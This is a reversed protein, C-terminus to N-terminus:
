PGGRAPPLMTDGGEADVVRARLQAQINRLREEDLEYFLLAAATLLAFLGPVVTQMYVISDLSAGSQVEGARYGMTALLSLLLASGAAGGLKQSFTTASFTMGTARHGTKWENFDAVDAYMAWTIPAKFGLAVSILFNLLFICVVAFSLTASDTVAGNSGRRQVSVVAGRRGDTKLSSHRSPAPSGIGGNPDIAVRRRFIWFVTEHQTWVYTDSTLGATGLLDEAQVVPGTDNDISVVGPPPPRPVAAFAVSLGAVVLLAVILVRRKDFWRSAVGALSAGVMLGFFQLGVYPGLLDTRQVYYRFYYAASAGRLTMTTMFAMALVFLVLWPRCQFLNKLDALASSEQDASAETVRESTTVFAVLILASAAIAYIAMTMSWGTPSYRDGGGFYTAVSPTASGVIISTLYAFFFRASNLASREHPNATLVASLSNYPTNVVTYMLMVLGYTAYAWILKGTPSFSPTTMMMIGAAMLPWPGFLLYPRFKGWRTETRDAIAGMLPDTVADVVKSITLMTAAAAPAIGFIDTYFFVLYSGIIAWYFNFGADGLGYGIRETWTLKAWRGTQLASM